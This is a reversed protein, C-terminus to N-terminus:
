ITGKYTGGQIDRRTHGKYTRKYVCGQIDRRTHARIHGEEYTRKYAGGQIDEQIDRRGSAAVSLDM